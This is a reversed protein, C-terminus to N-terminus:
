FAGPLAVVGLLLSAAPVPPPSPALVWGSFVGYAEEPERADTQGAESGESARPKKDCTIRMRFMELRRINFSAARQGAVVLAGYAGRRIWKPATNKIASM